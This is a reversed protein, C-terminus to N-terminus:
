NLELKGTKKKSFFRTILFVGYIVSYILACSGIVKFAMRAGYVSMIYGGLSTSIIRGGNFHLSLAIVKMTAQVGEPTVKVAYELVSVIFLDYTLIHTLEIIVAIWPEKLLSYAFGSVAHGLLALVFLNPEGIKNIWWRSYYLFPLGYLFPIGSSIGLLFDSAGMDQLYWNRFISQFGWSFGGVFLLLFFLVINIDKFLKLFKRGMEQAPNNLKTNVKWLEAASLCTFVTICYFVFSYNKESSDSSFVHLLFGVTPPGSLSGIISWIRQRGFDTGHEVTLDMVIVDFLKFQTTRIVDYVIFVIYYIFIWIEKNENCNMPPKSTCSFIFSECMEVRCTTLNEIAYKKLNLSYHCIGSNNNFVYKEMSINESSYVNNVYICNKHNESFTANRFSIKSCSIKQSDNQLIDCNAEATFLTFDDDQCTFNMTNSGCETVRPMLPFSLIVLLYIIFYGVMIPKARGIKDAFIGSVIGGSIQLPVSITNIIAFDAITFGQHKMFVPLFAISSYGAAFWFYLALKVPLFTKNVDIKCKKCINIKFSHRDKVRKSDNNLQSPSEM